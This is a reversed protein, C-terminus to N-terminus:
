FHLIKRKVQYGNTAPLDGCIERGLEIDPVSQMERTPMACWWLLGIAHYLPICVIILEGFFLLFIYSLFKAV